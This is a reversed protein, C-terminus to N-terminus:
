GPSLRGLDGLHATDGIGQLVWNTGAMGLRTIACNPIGMQEVNPALQRVVEDGFMTRLADVTVGGHSVVLALTDGSHERRLDDFAECFRRGAEGSSDGTSPRFARDETARAWDSLFAELSQKGDWNMRERLRADLQPHLGLAAEIYAATERARRLPSTWLASVELDSLHRAVARAQEYGRETLGPDGAASVKEAHQVIWVQM